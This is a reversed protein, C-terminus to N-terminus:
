VGPGSGMDDRTVLVNTLEEESMSFGDHGLNTVVHEGADRFFWGPSFNYFAQKVRKFHATGIFRPSKFM